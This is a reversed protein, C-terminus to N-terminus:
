RRKNMEIQYEPFYREIVSLEFHRLISTNPERELLFEFSKELLEEISVFNFQQAYEPLITVTHTTPSAAQVKVEYRLQDLKSITIQSM